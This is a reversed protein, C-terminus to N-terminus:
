QKEAHLLQDLLKQKNVKIVPTGDCSPPFVIVTICISELIFIYVPFSIATMAEQSIKLNSM